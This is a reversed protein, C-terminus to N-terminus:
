TTFATGADRIGCVNRVGAGGCTEPSSCSGCRLLRGCGDSVTGCALGLSVCSVSGCDKPDRERGADRSPDPSVADGVCSALAFSALTALLGPVACARGGAAGQMDQPE